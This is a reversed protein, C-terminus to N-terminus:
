EPHESPDPHDLLELEVLHDQSVQRVVSESLDLRALLELWAQLDLLDQSELFELLELSVLLELREVPAPLEKSGEQGQVVVTELTELHVV